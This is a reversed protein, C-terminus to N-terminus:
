NKQVKRGRMFSLHYCFYSNAHYFSIAQWIFYHSYQIHLVFSMGLNIEFRSSKLWWKIKTFKLKCAHINWKHINVDMMCTSPTWLEEPSPRLDGSVPTISQVCFVEWLTLTDWGSLACLATTGDTLYPTLLPISWSRQLSHSQSNLRKALRCGMPLSQQSARGAANMWQQSPRSRKKKRKAM